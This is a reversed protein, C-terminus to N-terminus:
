PQLLISKFSYIGHIDYVAHLSLTYFVEISTTAPELVPNMEHQKHYEQLKYNLFCITVARTILIKVVSTDLRTNHKATQQMVHMNTDMKDLDYELARHNINWELNFLMHISCQTNIQLNEMMLSLSHEVKWGNAGSTQKQIGFAFSM